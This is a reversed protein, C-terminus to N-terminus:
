GTLFSQRNNASVSTQRPELLLRCQLHGVNLTLLHLLQTGAEALRAEPTQTSLAHLTPRPPTAQLRYPCVTVPWRSLVTLVLVERSIQAILIIVSQLILVTSHVVTTHVYVYIKIRPSEQYLNLNNICKNKKVLALKSM